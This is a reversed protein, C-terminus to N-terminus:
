PTASVLDTVLVEFYLDDRLATGNILDGFPFPRHEGTKHFGRREYWAIIDRRQAIVTMEMRTSGWRRRVLTAAQDLMVRGIGGGQFKCSAGEFSLEALLHRAGLAKPLVSFVQGGRGFCLSGGAFGPQLFRLLMCCTSFLAEAFESGIAFRVCLTLALPERRRSGPIRGTGAEM